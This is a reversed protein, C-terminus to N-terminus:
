PTDREAQRYEAAPASQMTEIRPLDPGADGHEARQATDTDPPQVIERKDGGAFKAVDIIQRQSPPFHLVSLWEDQAAGGCTTDLLELILELCHPLLEVIEGLPYVESFPHERLLAFPRLQRASGLLVMRM